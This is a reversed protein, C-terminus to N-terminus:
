EEKLYELFKKRLKAVKPDIVIRCYPKDPNNAYYDRHYDEAPYFKEFPVIQTVIPAGFTNEADLRDITEEAAKQQEANHFFIASRYQDGVDNGQRNMTTPDHTAFFVDLLREYPIITPDYELRIVEAHGTHGSSVQEYSPNDIMGGSYGSTVNTVGKLRTFVAESCWFCGSGFTAIKTSLTM